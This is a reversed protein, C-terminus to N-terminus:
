CIGSAAFFASRPTFSSKPKCHHIKEVLSGCEGIGTLITSSGPRMELLWVKCFSGETLTSSFSVLRYGPSSWAIPWPALSRDFCCNGAASHLCSLVTPYTCRVTVALNRTSVKPDKRVADLVTSGEVTHSTGVSVQRSIRTRFRAFWHEVTGSPLRTRKWRGTSTGFLQWRKLALLWEYFVITARTSSVDHNFVLFAVRSYVGRVSFKRSDEVVVVHYVMAVSRSCFVRSGECLRNLVKQGVQCSGSLSNVSRAYAVAMCWQWTGFYGLPNNSLTRSSRWIWWDLSGKFGWVLTIAGSTDLHEQSIDYFGTWGDRTDVLRAM